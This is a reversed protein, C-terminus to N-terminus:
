FGEGGRMFQTLGDLWNLWELVPTRLVVGTPAASFIGCGLQPLPHRREVLSRSSGAYSARFNGIAGKTDVGLEAVSRV